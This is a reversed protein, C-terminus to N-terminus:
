QITVDIPDSENGNADVSSVSYTIRTGPIQNHDIFTFTDGGVSGILVNDRYINYRSASTGALAQWTLINIYEYILGFDNKGQAATLNAVPATTQPIFAIGYPRTLIPFPSGVIPTTTSTDVVSLDGSTVNTTYLREGSPDVVLVYPNTGQSSITNLLNLNLDFLSIDSAATNAVYMVTGDLNFAIGLSGSMPYSVMTSTALTPYEYRSITGLTSTSFVYSDNPDIAVVYPSGAGSSVDIQYVLNSDYHAIRGAGTIAVYVNNGTSDVAIGGANGLATSTSALYNLDADVKFIFYNGMTPAFNTLYVSGDPAVAVGFPTDFPLMMTGQTTAFPSGPIHTLAGTNTDIDFVSVTNAALFGPAYLRPGIGGLAPRIAILVQDGAAVPTAITSSVITLTDEDIVVISNQGAMPNNNDVVYVYSASLTPIGGIMGTLIWAFSRLFQKFMPAGIVNFLGTM